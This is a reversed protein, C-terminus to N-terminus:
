CSQSRGLERAITVAEVAQGVDYSAVGWAELPSGQRCVDQGPRGAFARRLEGRDAM